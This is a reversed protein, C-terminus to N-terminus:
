LSEAAPLLSPEGPYDVTLRVPEAQVANFLGETCDSLWGEAIAQQFHAQAAPPLHPVLNKLVNLSVTYTDKIQALGPLMRHIGLSELSSIVAMKIFEAHSAPDARLAELLAQEHLREAQLDAATLGAAADGGAAQTFPTPMIQASEQLEVEITVRIKQLNVM